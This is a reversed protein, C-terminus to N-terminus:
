NGTLVQDIQDYIEKLLAKADAIDKQPAGSAILTQLRMFAAVFKTGLAQLAVLDFAM